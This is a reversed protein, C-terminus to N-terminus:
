SAAAELKRLRIWHQLNYTLGAWLMEMHVKVLGRVRFQRLGLKSKIWAHCFEVVRGRSVVVQGILAANYTWTPLLLERGLLLHQEFAPIRTSM